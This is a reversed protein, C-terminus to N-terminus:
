RVALVLEPQDAPPTDPGSPTEEIPVGPEVPNPREPLSAALETQIQEMELNCATDLALFTKPSQVRLWHVFEQVGFQEVVRATQAAQRNRANAIADRMQEPTLMQSQLAQSQGLLNGWAVNEQQQALQSQLLEYGRQAQRRTVRVQECYLCTCDPEYESLSGARGPPTCYAYEYPMEKAGGNLSLPAFYLM